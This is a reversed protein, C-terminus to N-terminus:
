SWVQPDTPTRVKNWPGILSACRHRGIEDYTWFDRVTVDMTKLIQIIEQRSKKSAAKWTDKMVQLRTNAEGNSEKVIIQSWQGDFSLCPVKIGHQHCSEIVFRLM